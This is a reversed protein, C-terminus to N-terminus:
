ATAHDRQKTKASRAQELCFLGRQWFKVMRKQPDQWFILSQEPNKEYINHIDIFFSFM